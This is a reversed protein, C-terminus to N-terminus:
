RHTILLPYEAIVTMAKITSKHFMGELFGHDQTCLALVDAQNRLMYSDLSPVLESAYVTDFVLNADPEAVSLAEAMRELKVEAERTYHGTIIQLVTLGSGVARTFDLVQELPLVGSKLYDFAFVTKAATAYACENPILLLPTLAQRATRYTHSGIFFQVMDHPGNSGMVILDYSTAEEAIVAIASRASRQVDAECSIHFAKRVQESLETLRLAPEQMSHLPALVGLAQEMLSEVHFLTLTAGSHQAIKAAYVVANDATATFDTPCIIKKM